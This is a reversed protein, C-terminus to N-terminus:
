FTTGLNFRFSETIDNKGKSIVESLSFSLPGIPTFLDVAIGISSRIASNDSLSSSYDIGWVNGADFFISFETNQSNPLIQPLTTSVNVVAAYNGGVYDSGDIPGVKGQEFGRLKNSPIFVRDSLKVNKNSLSNVSAAYFNFSAVNNDLFENYLQYNYSNKLSYSESILPVAQTFKSSYGSSPQYKQNRKDYDFSYNFYTDFFSGKQKKVTASATSDTKIKEIYSSIGTRLFLDEYFEFGNGISLGTKSSKYGYNKLRDTTTSEMSFNVLMDTGLYNPNEVLLIGKVTESSVSLDSTFEIGKGLFNNEKVGFSVTGGSTGVGAGASIEGTPKEEVSLNIIKMNDDSGNIIESEVKKFFNLSKVKNISKAHLLKNFADGEDVFLNNRIVEELTVNNGIINIKEVYVKESEEINFVLSILNDKVVENVTSNLFEYEKNLAIKDIEKLIKEIENLSYPKNELLDFKTQLDEFNSIDYDSPIKLNLNSFFYKEGADINYILEFNNNGLYNASSSQIKINFYGKNKYFNILLREDLSILGENLFKKGSLFKWFQYEESVIISGLKSDKFKKNGLFSIKSIKSKEGRNIDYTLNIKNIGIEEVSSKVSVFYYGNNKFFNNISIEDKKVDIINFSSRDKLILLDEIGKSYKKTKVGKIFVTQIIPNELVIIFLKKDKIKVSVDKFYGTEYLNKLIINLSTEDLVNNKPIKSFLEITENSIRSNGQILIENFNESFSSFTLLVWLLFIQILKM